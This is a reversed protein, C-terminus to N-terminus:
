IFAYCEHAILYQGGGFAITSGAYIYQGMLLLPLYKELTNKERNKDIYVVTGTYGESETHQQLVLHSMVISINRIEKKQFWKGWAFDTDCYAYSLLHMRKALEEILQPLTISGQLDCSKCLATPTTFHLVLENNRLQANEFNKLRLGEPTEITRDGSNAWLLSQQGYATTESVSILRLRGGCKRAFASGMAEFVTMLVPLFRIYTGCLTFNVCVMEGAKLSAPTDPAAAMWYGRPPKTYDTFCDEPLTKYQGCGPCKSANPRHKQHWPHSPDLENKFLYDSLPRDDYLGLNGAKEMKELVLGFVERLVNGHFEPFVVPELAQYTLTLPYITLNVLPKTYFNM